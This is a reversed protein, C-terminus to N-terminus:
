KRLSFWVEGEASDIHNIEELFEAVLANYAIIYNFLVVMGMTVKRNIEIDM